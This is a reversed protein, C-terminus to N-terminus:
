MWKKHPCEGLTQKALQCNACLIQHRGQPFGQKRLWRYFPVGARRTGFVERREAAGDDNVHDLTLFAHEQEGCCQCAAGYASLMEQKVREDAPRRGM